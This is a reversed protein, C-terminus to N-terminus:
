GCGRVEVGVWGWRYITTSGKTEDQKQRTKDKRRVDHRAKRQNKKRRKKMLKGNDAEDQEPRMM